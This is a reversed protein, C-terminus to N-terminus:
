KVPDEKIEQSIDYEFGIIKFYPNYQNIGLRKSQSAKRKNKDEWNLTKKATPFIHLNEM